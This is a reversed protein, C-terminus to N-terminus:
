AALKVVRGCSERRDKVARDALANHLEIALYRCGKLLAVTMIPIIIILVVTMILVAIMILAMTMILVIAEMIIAGRIRDM